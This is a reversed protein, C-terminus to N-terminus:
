SENSLTFLNSLDTEQQDFFGEPWNEIKGDSKVVLKEPAFSESFYIISVDQTSINIDKKLASIRLGNLIHESHSEIFVQVGTSAVKSFFEAIRSQAKPHLHAEPNEIIIIEGEEALLGTVILPLIYSYGFGVNAPKYMYSNPKNNLLISLVSSEQELGQMSIKAGGLIYSLWETTQQLLSMSDQGLYLVPNIESLRFSNALIKITNEGRAGVSVFEPLNTKEVYKVPGLRDASVYHCNEFFNSLASYKQYPTNIFNEANLEFNYKITEGSTVTLKHLEAILPEDFDEQYEFTAKLNFPNGISEKTTIDFELKINENKVAESYKIDSFNGLKLVDGNIILESFDVSSRATQSLLLISQLISSKGRGNIGTLLNIKSFEFTPSEKFCKFNHLNIKNIM